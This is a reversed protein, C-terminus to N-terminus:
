PYQLFLHLTQHTLSERSYVNLVKLKDAVHRPIINHLLWDTQNKIRRMKSQEEAALLSGHFNLRFGIEFERNLILNLLVIEALVLWIEIGFSHHNHTSLYAISTSSAPCVGFRLSVVFVVGFIAALCAKMWSNLQTFNFFHVLAVLAVYSYHRQNDCYRSTSLISVVPLSILIAGFTHWRKWEVIAAFIKDFRERVKERFLIRRLFLAVVFTQYYIAAVFVVIWEPPPTFLIFCCTAVIAFILIAVGIDIRTNLWRSNLTQANESAADKDRHGSGRYLAEVHEDLFCLSLKALPPEVFYNHRMCDQQVVRILEQDSQKRLQHYFAFPRSSPM